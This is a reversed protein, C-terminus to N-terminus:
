SIPNSGDTEIVIAGYPSLGVLETASKGGLLLKMIEAFLRVRVEQRPADYWHNFVSILWDAYPTEKSGPIRGPPPSSWNGHPLLFDITPPQFRAL